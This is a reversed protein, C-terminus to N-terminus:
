EQSKKENQSVSNEVSTEQRRQSINNRAMTVPAETIKKDYINILDYLVASGNKRTGVIVDAVYGKGGVRYQVNGRAFEVIDDTRTHKKQEGIWNKAAFLIEDANAITKLKDNYTQSSQKLLGNASNSRRFEDNTIKNVQIKQGHIDIINNFRESIVRQITRAVSEGDSEDFIDETIDVFTNGDVDKTLSYKVGNEVTNKQATRGAYNESAEVVAETWLRKLEEFTELQEAVFKGEASDPSLGKYVAKIRDVLKTIYEVIKDWLSGDARM